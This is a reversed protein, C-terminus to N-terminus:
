NSGEVDKARKVLWSCFRVDAGLLLVLEWYYGAWERGEGKRGVVYMYGNISFCWV